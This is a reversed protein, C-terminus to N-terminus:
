FSKKIPLNKQITINGVISNRKKLFPQILPLYEPNIQKFPIFMDNEKNPYNPDFFLKGDNDWYILNKDYLTHLTADLPLCNYPSAIEELIVDAETKGEKQSSLKKINAVPHTHAFEIAGEVYAKENGFIENSWNQLNNFYEFVKKKQKQRLSNIRENLDYLENIRIKLEQEIEENVDKWCNDIDTYARFFSKLMEEGNIWQEFSCRELTIPFNKFDEDWHKQFFSNYNADDGYRKHFQKTQNLQQFLFGFSCKLTGFTTKFGSTTNGEGPSNSAKILYEINKFTVKKWNFNWLYKNLNGMKKQDAILQKTKPLGEKIYSHQLGLIKFFNKRLFLSESNKKSEKHSETTEMTLTMKQIRVKFDYIMVNDVVLLIYQLINDEKTDCVPMSVLKFSHDELIFEQKEKTPKSSMARGLIGIYQLYSRVGRSCYFEWM